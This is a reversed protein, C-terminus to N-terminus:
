EHAHGTPYLPALQSTSILAHATEGQWFPPTQEGVPGPAYVQLQGAPHVASLQSTWTSPHELLGHTCPVQTFM